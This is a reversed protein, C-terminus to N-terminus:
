LGTAAMGFGTIGGAILLGLLIEIPTHRGLALRSWAVLLTCVLLVAALPLSFFAVATAVGGLMGTHISVKVWLRTVIGFAVLTTLGSAFVAQVPRPAGLRWLVLVCAAMCGVALAYLGYRDERVSVDADTVQHHILKYIIFGGVPLIVFGACLAAWEAAQALSMGDLRLILMIAVPAILFPHLAWSVIRAIRVALPQRKEQEIVVSM